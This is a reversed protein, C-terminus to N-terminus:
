GDKRIAVSGDTFSFMEPVNLSYYCLAIKHTFIRLSLSMLTRQLSNDYQLEHDRFDTHYSFMSEFGICFEKYYINLKGSINFYNFLLDIFSNLGNCKSLKVGANEDALLNRMLAEYDPFDVSVDFYVGEIIDEQKPFTFYPINVKQGALHHSYANGCMEGYIRALVIYYKTFLYPLEEVHYRLSSYSYTNLAAISNLDLVFQVGDNSDSIIEINNFNSQVWFFTDRDCNIKINHTNKNQAADSWVVYLNDEAAYMIRNSLFSTLLRCVPVWENKIQILASSDCLVQLLDWLTVSEQLKIQMNAAIPISKSLVASCYISVPTMILNGLTINSQEALEKVESLTAAFIYSCHATLDMGVALFAYINANDSSRYLAFIEYNTTNPLNM